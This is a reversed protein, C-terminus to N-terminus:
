ERVPSVRSCQKAMNMPGPSSPFDVQDLVIALTIPSYAPTARWQYRKELINSGGASQVAGPNGSAIQNLNHLWPAIPLVRCIPEVGHSARNDDIFAIM